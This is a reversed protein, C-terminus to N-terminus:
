LVGRHQAVQKPGAAALVQWTDNRSFSRVVFCHTLASALLLEHCRGSGCFGDIAVSADAHSPEEIELPKPESETGTGAISHACTLIPSANSTTGLVVCAWALSIQFPM